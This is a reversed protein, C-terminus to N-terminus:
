GVEFDEPDEDPATWAFAVTPVSGALGLTILLLQSSQAVGTPDVHSIVQLHVVVLACGVLATYYGLSLFRDHIKLEREDLQSPPRETVGRTAARLVLWVAVWLGYCVSWGSGLESSDGLLAGLVLGVLGLAWLLAVARRPSRSRWSSRRQQM